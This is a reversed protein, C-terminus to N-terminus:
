PAKETAAGSSARRAAAHEALRDRWLTDIWLRESCQGDPIQAEPAWAFVRRLKVPQTFTEPDALELDNVLLRGRQPHTEIRWQERLVLGTGHSLGQANLISQPEMDTTEVLLRDGEFRGRSVGLWTPIRDEEAPRARGDLYVRRTEANLLNPQFVFYVRDPTQLM